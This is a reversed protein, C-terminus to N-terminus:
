WEHCVSINCITYSNQKLECEGFMGARCGSGTTVEPINVGMEEIEPNLDWWSTGFEALNDIFENGMLNTYKAGDLYIGPGGAGARNGAVYSNLMILTGEEIYMAGGYLAFGDIFSSGDITTVGGRGVTGLHGGNGSGINRAFKSGLIALDATGRSGIACGGQTCLNDLFVCNSITAKLVDHIKIAGGEGKEANNDAFLCTDVALKGQLFGDDDLNKISIAGGIEARCETFNTNYVALDSNEAKM